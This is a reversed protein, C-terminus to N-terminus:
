TTNVAAMFPYMDKNETAICFSLHVHLNPPFLQGVKLIKVLLFSLALILRNGPVLKLLLCEFTNWLFQQEKGKAFIQFDEVACFKLEM